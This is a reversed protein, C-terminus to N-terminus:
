RVHGWTKRTRIQWITRPALGYLRGMETLGLSSARIARVDSETIKARHCAEGRDKAENPILKWVHRGKRDRDRNNDLHTGLFLHDPNVCERVDCKHCVLMGKPIDGHHLMWSARHAKTTNKYRFFGYRHQSICSATWIWCGSNPEPIYKENFREFARADEVKSM